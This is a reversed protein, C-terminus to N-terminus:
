SRNPFLPVAIADLFDLLGLGPVQACLSYERRGELSAFNLLSWTILPDSARIPTRSVTSLLLSVKHTPRRLVANDKLHHKIDGYGEHSNLSSNGIEWVLTLPNVFALVSIKMLTLM